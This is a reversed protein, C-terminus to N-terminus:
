SLNGNVAPRKVVFLTRDSNAPAGDTFALLSQDIRDALAAADLTQAEAVLAALRESGFRRREPGLADLVSESLMIVVDGPALTLTETFIREDMPASGQRSNRDLWVMDGDQAIRHLVPCAGWRALHILGGVPDLVACCVSVRGVTRGHVLMEERVLATLSEAEVRGARLYTRVASRTSEAQQASRIGHLQTSALVLALGEPKGERCYIWGGRTDRVLRVLYPM